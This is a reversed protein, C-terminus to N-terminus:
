GSISAPLGFRLSLEVQRAFGGIGVIQESEIEFSSSARLRRLGERGAVVVAFTLSGLHAFISSM